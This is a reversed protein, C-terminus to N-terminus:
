RMVGLIWQYLSLTITEATFRECARRARRQAEALLEPDSLLGEIADALVM